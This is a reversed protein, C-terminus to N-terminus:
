ISQLKIYDLDGVLDAGFVTLFINYHTPIKSQGDWPESGHGAHLFLSTSAVHAILGDGVMPHMKSM